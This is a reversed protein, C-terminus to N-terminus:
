RNQYLVATHCGALWGAVWGALWTATAIVSWALANLRFISQVPDYNYTITRWLQRTKKSGCHVNCRVKRTGYYRVQPRPWQVSTQNEMTYVIVDDPCTISPPTTDPPRKVFLKWNVSLYWYIGETSQCQLKPSLFPMRGTFIGCGWDGFTRRISPRQSVRRLRSYDRCIYVPQVFRVTATTTM